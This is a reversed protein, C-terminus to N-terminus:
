SPIFSADPGSYGTLYNQFLWACVGNQAFAAEMLDAVIAAPMENSVYMHDRRWQQVVFWAPAVEDAPNVVMGLMTALSGLDHTYLERRDARTPYRNLREKAMIAAKLLCECAFGAHSWALNRTESDGEALKALKYAARALKIWGDVSDATEHMNKGVGGAVEAEVFGGDAGDGFGGQHLSKQV